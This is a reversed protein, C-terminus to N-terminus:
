QLARAAADRTELLKRLAITVEPGDPLSAIEEALATFKEKLVNPLLPSKYKLFKYVQRTAPNLTMEDPMM